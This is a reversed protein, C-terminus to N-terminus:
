RWLCATATGDYAITARDTDGHKVVNWLLERVCQFLFIADNEALSFEDGPGDVEVSLGHRGMQEGLWGLAAPLGLDYM